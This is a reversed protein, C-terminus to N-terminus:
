RRQRHNAVSPRGMRQPLKLYLDVSKSPDYTRVYTDIRARDGSNFADLFAQLTHGAPSDPIAPQQASAVLLACLMLFVLLCISRMAKEGPTGTAAETPQIGGPFLAFLNGVPLFLRAGRPSPM